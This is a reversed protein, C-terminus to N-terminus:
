PKKSNESQRRPINTHARTHTHTHIHTCTYSHIKARTHTHTCTYSYIKARKINPKDKTKEFPCIGQAYTVRILQNVEKKQCHKEAFQKLHTDPAASFYLHTHTHDRTHTHTHTQAHTHTHTHTHAYRKLHRDLAASFYLHPHTQTRSHPHSHPHTYTRTNTHMNIHAHTRTTLHIPQTPANTGPRNRAHAYKDIDTSM